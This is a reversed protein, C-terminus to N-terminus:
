KHKEEWSTAEEKIDGGDLMYLLIGLWHAPKDSFKLGYLVYLKGELALQAVDDIDKTSTDESLYLELRVKNDIFKVNLMPLKVVSSRAIIIDINSFGYYKKRLVSMLWDPNREIEQIVNKVIKPHVFIKWLQEFIKYVCVIIGIIAIVKM